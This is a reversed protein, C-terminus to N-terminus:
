KYPQMLKSIMERLPINKDICKGILYGVASCFILFLAKFFGFILILLGIIFGITVGIIKGRHNDWLEYFFNM